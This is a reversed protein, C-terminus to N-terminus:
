TLAWKWVEYTQGDKEVEGLREAPFYKFMRPEQTYTYIADYGSEYARSRITAWMEKIEKLINKSFEYVALHIMLYGDVEELSIKFRDDEYFTKKIYSSAM